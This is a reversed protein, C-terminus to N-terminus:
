DNLTIDRKAIMDFFASHFETCRDSNAEPAGHQESTGEPETESQIKQEEEMYWYHLSTDKEGDVAFLSEVTQNWDDTSIGTYAIVKDLEMRKQWEQFADKFSVFLGCGSFDTSCKAALVKLYQPLQKRKNAHVLIKMATAIMKGTNASMSIIQLLTKVYEMRKSISTEEHSKEQSIFTDQTFVLSEMLKTSNAFVYDDNMMQFFAEFIHRKRLSQKLQNYLRPNFKIHEAIVDFIIALPQPDNTNLVLKILYDLIGEICLYMQLCPAAGSLLSELVKLLKLTYSFGGMQAQNTRVLYCIYTLLDCDNHMIHEEGLAECDADQYRGELRRNLFKMDQLEKKSLVLYKSITGECFGQLCELAAFTINPRMMEKSCNQGQLSELAASTINPRMMEEPRRQEEYDDPNKMHNMFMKSFKNMFGAEVLVQCVETQHAGKLCTALAGLVTVQMSNNLDCAMDVLHELFNPHDLLSAQNSDQATSFKVSYLPSLIRCFNALQEETANSLMLYLNEVKTLDLICGHHRTLYSLLISAINSTDDLLCLELLYQVFEWDNALKKGQEKSEPMDLQILKDLLKLAYFKTKLCPTGSEDRSLPNSAPLAKSYMILRLMIDMGGYSVVSRLYEESRELIYAMIFACYAHQLKNSTISISMVDLTTMYSIMNKQEDNSASHTSPPQIQRGTSPRAYPHMRTGNKRFVGGYPHMPHFM